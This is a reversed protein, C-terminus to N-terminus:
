SQRQLLYQVRILHQRAEIINKNEKREKVMIELGEKLYKESEILNNQHMLAQGIFSKASGVLYHSSRYNKMRYALCTRFADEAKVYRKLDIYIKGLTIYINGRIQNAIPVRSNFIKEAQIAHVLAQEPKGKERLLMALTKLRTALAPHNKGYGKELIRISERYNFEASDLKGLQKQIAGLNGLTIGYRPDDKGIGREDISLAMKTLEEAKSYNKLKHYLRARNTLITAISPHADGLITARMEMAIVQMSDAYKYQKRQELIKAFLSLVFAKDITKEKGLREYELSISNLIKEAEDNKYLAYLVQAMEMKSKLLAEIDSKKEQIAIAKGLVVEAEDLKSQQQLLDGYNTLVAAFEVSENGYHNLVEERVILFLSDASGFDNNELYSVALRHLGQLYKEKAEPLQATRIAVVNQHTNVAKKFAGLKIYLDGMVSLLDAQEDPRDKLGINAQRVGADVIENAAKALQGDAGEDPDIVDFLGIVYDLVRGARDREDVIRKAQQYFAWAGVASMLMILVSLGVGVQHRLVFKKVRYRMTPTRAEVPKNTLFRDIDEAFAEASWYRLSPEKRLAKLVINDLDGRLQRKLRQVNAGRAASITDPTIEGEVQMIATSPRRPSVDCIVQEIEHLLKGKLAYPKHGTLLRYLLVGLAYIDTVTTIPEGRVQEPAAYEPTMVRAGSETLTPLDTDPKLLKAIGFDLLKVVPGSGGEQDETVLINSPKLDRHVILSRHAHGVAECVQQFLQLRDDVSLKNEDCYQDISIGDVYEMVLYPLRHDAIGTPKTVGGDYLRAINPHNLQALIQREAQFRLRHQTDYVASHVLKVAVRQQFDGDVREALYVAGMGGRGICEKIRYSGITEPMVEAPIGGILEQVPVELFNLGSLEINLLVEVEQRLAEDDGVAADVYAAREAPDLDLAESLIAKVREWQPDIM